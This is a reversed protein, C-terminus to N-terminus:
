WGFYMLKVHLNSQYGLFDALCINRTLLKRQKAARHFQGWSQYNVYYKTQVELELEDVPGMEYQQHLVMMETEYFKLCDHVASQEM